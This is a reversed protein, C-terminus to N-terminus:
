LADTRDDIRYSTITGQQGNTAFLLNNAPDTALMETGGDPANSVSPPTMPILAAAGSAFRYQYLNGDASNAVYVARHDPAVAVGAPGDVAGAYVNSKPRLEGSDLNRTFVTVIADNHNAVFAFAQLGPTSTATPTATASSGQTPTVSSTGTSSSNAFPFI